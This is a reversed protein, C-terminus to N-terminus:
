IILNFEFIQPKQSPVPWSSLPALRRELRLLPLISHRYCLLARLGLHPVFHTEMTTLLAVCFHQQSRFCNLPMIQASAFQNWDWIHTINSLDPIQSGNWIQTILLWNWIQTIKPLWNWIQPINSLDPIPSIRVLILLLLYIVILLLLSDLSM